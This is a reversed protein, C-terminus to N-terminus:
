NILTLSNIHNIVSATQAYRSIQVKQSAGPIEVHLIKLKWENLHKCAYRLPSRSRTRRRAKRTKHEKRRHSEKRRGDGVKRRKRHPPSASRRIVTRVPSDDWRVREDRELSPSRRRRPLRMLDEVSDARYLGRARLGREYRLREEEEYEMQERHLIRM